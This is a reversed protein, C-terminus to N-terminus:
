EEDVTPYMKFALSVKDKNDETAHIMFRQIPAKPNLVIWRKQFLGPPVAIEGALLHSEPYMGVDGVRKGTKTITQIADVTLTASAVGLAVAQTTSSKSSLGVAASTGVLSALFVRNNHNEIAKKQQTAEAWASLDSGGPVYVSKNKAESGMDISVNKLRIWESSQNEFTMQIVEFNADSLEEDREFTVRLGKITYDEFSRLRGSDDKFEAYQKDEITACGVNIAALALATVALLMKTTIMKIPM